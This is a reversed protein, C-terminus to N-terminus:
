KGTLILNGAAIWLVEPAHRFADAGKRFIPCIKKMIEITARKQAM